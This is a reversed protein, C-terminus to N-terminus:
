QQTILDQRVWVARYAIATAKKNAYMALSDLRIDMALSKLMTRLQLVHLHCALHVGKEVDYMSQVMHQGDHMGIQCSHHVEIHAPATWLCGNGARKTKGYIGTSSVDAM